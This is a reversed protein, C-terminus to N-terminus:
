RLCGHGVELAVLLLDARDQVLPSEKGGTLRDLQGRLDGVGEVTRMTVADDVAANSVPKTAVGMTTVGSTANAAISVVVAAASSYDQPVRVSGWWDGVVDKVFAGIVERINSTAILAAYGNGSSDVAFANGTEDKSGRITQTYIVGTGTSNM